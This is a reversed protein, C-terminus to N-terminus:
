DELVETPSSDYRLRFQHSLVHKITFHVDYHQFHKHM